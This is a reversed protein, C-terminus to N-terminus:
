KGGTSRVRKLAEMQSPVRVQDVDKQLYTFVIKLRFEEEDEEDQEDQLGQSKVGLARGFPRPYFRKHDVEEVGDRRGGEILPVDVVAVSAWIAFGEVALDM